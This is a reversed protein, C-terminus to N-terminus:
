SSWLSFLSGSDLLWQYAAVVIGCVKRSKPLKAGDCGPQVAIVKYTWENSRFQGAIKQLDKRSGKTIPSSRPKGTHRVIEDMVRPSMCWQASRASQELVEYFDGVRDSPTITSSSKCHYFAIEKPNAEPDVVIFDALEGAGHDRIVIAARSSTKILVAQVFDQVSIGTASPPRAENEIDIGTWDQPVVCTSPLPGAAINPLWQTSGIVVGRNPCVIVPPFAELFEDLEGDFREEDGFDLRVECNLTDSKKWIAKQRASYRLTLPKQKSDFFLDCQLSGDKETYKSIQILPSSDGIYSSSGDHVTIRLEGRLVRDDLFVALPREDLRKIEIPRALFDIEPLGAPQRRASLQKAITECWGIFGTLGSRRISWIRGNASAIGRTEDKDVRALAHGPAFVRADSSRVSAQVETGMFTKYTPHAPGQGTANRLGLMLYDPDAIGSMAKLLEGPKLVPLDDPGIQKRILRAIDDSSTYEFLLGAASYRYYIHLDYATHSIGTDIAWAPIRETETIVVLVDTKVDRQRLSVEIDSPFAIDVDLDLSLSDARYVRVSYFPKLDVPDVDLPGYVSPSQFTRAHSVKGLIKDVLKPILRRWDADQHYLKRVEGRVEDPSAILHADGVQTKVVRSVRGIFQLTFPLSRPAHHLVAIKLEPLDLGEGVMGVCVIGELDNTRVRGLVQENEALTKSYDVQEVKIGNENYMKVLRGADKVRDTRVLLKSNNALKEENRLIRKAAKCLSIDADQAAHGEVAHYEVPRYINADLARSLPYSYILPAQMRRKDRRFPTATLLVRKSRGFAALLASWTPAPTHHAEDIFVLDFLDSPPKAIEQYEPSTTHPTAVVVAYQKLNVWEAQSKLQGERSLTTPGELDSPAVGIGKLTQLSEFSAAVQDRLITSPEIVLVREARLGFALIHMLATKGSGTPLSLLAPGSSMTFHALVAWYAGIQCERLGLDSPSEVKLTLRPFNYAFYAM